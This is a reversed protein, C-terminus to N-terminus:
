DLQSFVFRAQRFGGGEEAVVQGCDACVHVASARFGEDLWIWHMSEYEYGCDCRVTLLPADKARATLEATAKAIRLVSAVEIDPVVNDFRMATWITDTVHKAEKLSLGCFAKLIRVLM